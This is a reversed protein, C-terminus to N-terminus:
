SGLLRGKNLIERTIIPTSVRSLRRARPSMENEYMELADLFEYPTSLAKQWYEVDKAMQRDDKVQSVTTMSYEYQTDGYRAVLPAFDSGKTPKRVYLDAARGESETTGLFHWKAQSSTQHRKFRPQTNSLSKLYGLLSM